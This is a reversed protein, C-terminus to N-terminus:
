LLDALACGIGAGVIGFGCVTATCLGWAATAFLCAGAAGVCTGVSGAVFCKWFQSDQGSVQMDRSFGGVPWARYENFWVGEAVEVYQDTVLDENFLVEIPQVLTVPETEIYQVIIIRESTDPVYKMTYWTVVVDLSETYGDPVVSGEMVATYQPVFSFHRPGFTEMMKLVADPVNAYDPDVGNTPSDSTNENISLNASVPTEDLRNCGILMTHLMTFMAIFVFGKFIKSRYM